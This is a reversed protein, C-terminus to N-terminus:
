PKKYYTLDRICYVRLYFNSPTSHCRSSECTYNSYYQVDEPESVHDTVVACHPSVVYFIFLPFKTSNKEVLCLFFFIETNWIWSVSGSGM